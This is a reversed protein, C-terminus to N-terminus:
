TVIEVSSGGSANKRVILQKEIRERLEGVHSIIGVLRNGCTLDMLVKIAQSLADGSLSGFGEDVFMTDLKIGGAGSQIEDSLGLALSLSAMFSEGGSLTSVSRASGNYHDLVDIELGSQSQRSNGEKRRRLEYQGESMVMFRKSARALIRDFCTMQVYTELAIKERGTVTGSATAALPGVLKLREDTELIARCDLTLADYAATNAAIRKTLQEAALSLEEQRAYLRDYDARVAAEDVPAASMLENQLSEISGLLKARQAEKQEALMKAGNIASEIRSKKSTLAAIENLAADLSEYKLSGILESLKEERHKIDASLAVIAKEVDAIERRRADTKEEFESTHKELQIKRKARTEEVAIRSEIDRAYESLTMKHQVINKPIEANECAGFLEYANKIVFDRKQEYQGNIGSAEANCKEAVSQARDLREKLKDLEEETPAHQTLQAPAPHTLSGCVPCPSNESLTQALIGAREDMIRRYSQTYEANLRAVEDAAATYKETAAKKQKFLKKLEDYATSLEDLKKRREELADREAVLKARAEGADQMEKLEDRQAKLLSEREAQESKKTKLKEEEARLELKLRTIEPRIGELEMYRPLATNEVAIADTLEALEDTHSNAEILATNAEALNSEAVALEQRSRELSELLKKQAQARGLETSLADLERQLQKSQGDCDRKKRGDEEILKGVLEVITEYDGSATVEQRAAEIQSAIAGDDPLSIANLDRKICDRRNNRDAKLRNNEESLMEELRKYMDTKFISRLIKIRDATSAMLLKLFDGQAIMAIQSFQEKDIGLIAVIERTVDTYKTIVRGDPLELTASQAQATLRSDGRKAPREYMPNRKVKYLKDRYIFDLEVETPTEPSAYKSRLLKTERRDGSAEGYLAFSIADFITTKGAGTDGAILYLGSEGLKAMDIETVGSYPGFASLKLKVPRM